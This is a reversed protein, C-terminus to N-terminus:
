KKKIDKKDIMKNAPAKVEKEAETIEFASPDAEYIEKSIEKDKEGAYHYEGKFGINYKINAKM